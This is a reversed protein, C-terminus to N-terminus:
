KEAPLVEMFHHDIGGHVELEAEAEVIAVTHDTVRETGTGIAEEGAEMLRHPDAVVTAMRAEQEIRIQGLPATIRAQLIM